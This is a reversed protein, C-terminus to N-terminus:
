IERKLIKNQFWHVAHLFGVRELVSRVGNRLAGARWLQKRRELFLAHKPLYDSLSVWEGGSLIADSRYQKAAELLEPRVKDFVGYRLQVATREVASTRGGERTSLGESADTFWGLLGECRNMRIGKAALRLSFEMDAAVQFQEDFYGASEVQTRRMLWFAGGQPLARQFYARSYRPTYRREGQTDGYNKVAIYDGYCLASETNQELSALQRQMSDIERRDDINWISLYPARSARWARNWSAGLSERKTAQIINVQDPHAKAFADGSKMEASSPENMVLVVELEPFITQNSLNEFFSGLYREGRFVSTLVSASPSFAM